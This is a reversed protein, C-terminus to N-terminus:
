PKSREKGIVESGKIKRKKPDFHRIKKETAHRHTTGGEGRPVRAMGEPGRIEGGREGGLQDRFCVGRRLGHQV